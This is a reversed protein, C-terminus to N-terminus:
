QLMAQLAVEDVCKVGLLFFLDMGKEWKDLDCWGLSKRSAREGPDVFGKESNQFGDSVMGSLWDLALTTLVVCVLCDGSDRCFCM